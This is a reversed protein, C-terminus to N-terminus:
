PYYYPSFTLVVDDKTARFSGNELTEIEYGRQEVYWRSVDSGNFDEAADEHAPDGAECDYKLRLEPINTECCWKGFLPPSYGGRVDAGTHVFLTMIVNNSYFWDSEPELGWAEYVFVQDFDNESNYTNDRGLSVYGMEEMFEAATEFWSGDREAVWERYAANLAEDEDFHEVLVGTLCISEGNIVNNPPPPQQWIRGNDGGSDLFHTGSNYRTFELVREYKM